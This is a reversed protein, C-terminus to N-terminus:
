AGRPFEHSGTVLGHRSGAALNRRTEAASALMDLRCRRLAGQLIGGHRMPWYSGVKLNLPERGRFTRCHLHVYCCHWLPDQVQELTLLLLDTTTAGEPLLGERVVRGGIGEEEITPTMRVVGDGLGVVDFKGLDEAFAMVLLEHMSRTADTMAKPSM